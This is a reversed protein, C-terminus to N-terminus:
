HHPVRRYEEAANLLWIGAALGQCLHLCQQVVEEVMRVHRYEDPLPQDLAEAGRVRRRGVDPGDPVGESAPGIVARGEGSPVAVQRRRGCRHHQVGLSAGLGRAARGVAAGYPLREELEDVHHAAHFVPVCIEARNDELLELVHNALKGEARGRHEVEVLRIELQGHHGLRLRLGLRWHHGRLELDQRRREHHAVDVAHAGQDVLPDAGIAPVVLLQADGCPSRSPWVAGLAPEGPRAAGAGVLGQLVQVDHQRAAPQRRLRARDHSPRVLGCPRPPLQLSRLLGDDHRGLEVGEASRERLWLRPRHFAARALGALLGVLGHHHQEQRAARIGVVHQHGHLAGQVLLVDLSTFIQGQLSRLEKGDVSAATSLRALLKADM